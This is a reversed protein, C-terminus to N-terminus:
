NYSPEFEDFFTECGKDDQDVSSWLCTTIYGEVIKDIILSKNNM